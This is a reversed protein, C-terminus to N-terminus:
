SGFLDRQRSASMKIGLHEAGGPTLCRGRPTRDILGLRVLFPEVYSEITDKDEGLAAALTALGTPGGSFKEGLARLYEMDAPFLGLPDVGIRDLMTELKSLDDDVPGEVQIFDRLRRLLQLAIRPTGRCRGALVNRAKQGMEVNLRRSNREIIVALEAPSYYELKENIGFRDRLPKSLLSARTTAGVLTFPELEIKLSRATPGEGVIIDLEFDEMAPYLIEEITVPLRHIEDIFLISNPELRTVIAALDKPKELSPGSTTQLPVNMERAIIYALTTKGLGPPGHFLVHDLAEERARCAEIYINLNRRLREQGVFENIQQPRASVEEDRDAATLPIFQTSTM